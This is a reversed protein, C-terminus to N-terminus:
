LTLHLIMGIQMTTADQFNPPRYFSGFSSSINYTWGAKNLMPWIRSFLIDDDPLVVERGNMEMTKGGFIQANRRSRKRSSSTPQM